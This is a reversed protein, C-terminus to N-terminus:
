KGSKDKVYFVLSSTDVDDALIALRKTLCSICVNWTRGDASRIGWGSVRGCCATNGPVTTDTILNTCRPLDKVLM